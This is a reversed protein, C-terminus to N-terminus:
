TQIFNKLCKIRYYILALTLCWKQGATRDDMSPYNNSNNNIYNNNFLKEKIVVKRFNRIQDALSVDVDVFVNTVSTESKMFLSFNM